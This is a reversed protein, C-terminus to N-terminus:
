PLQLSLTVFSQKQETKEGGNDNYREMRCIVKTSNQKEAICIDRPVPKGKRDRVYLNNNFKATTQRRRKDKLFM